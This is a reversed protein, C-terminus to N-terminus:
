GEVKLWRTKGEVERKEYKQGRGTGLGRGYETHCAPCMNAWGRSTSGDIFTDTIKHSADIDCATPPDGMWYRPKSTESM